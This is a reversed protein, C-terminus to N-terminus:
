LGLDRRINDILWFHSIHLTEGVIIVAGKGYKLGAVFPIMRKEDKKSPMSAYEIWEGKPAYPVMMYCPAFWGRLKRDFDWPKKCWDGERVYKVHREGLPYDKPEECACVVNTDGFIKQLPVTWWSRALLTGGGRVHERIVAAVEPTFAKSDPVQLYYSDTKAVNAALEAANTCPLLKWGDAEAQARLAPIGGLCRKDGAYFLIPREAAPAALFDLKVTVDERVPYAEAGSAFRADWKENAAPEHGFAAMPLRILLGKGGKAEATWEPKWTTMEVGVDSIRKASKAGGRFSFTYREAYADVLTVEGEAAGTFAFVIETKPTWYGCVKVAGDKGNKAKLATKPANGKGLREGANVKPLKFSVANGLRLERYDVWQEYLAKERQVNRRTREDGNAALKEAEALLAATKARVKDDKLLNASVNMGDAFLGIKGPQAGWAGDVALFYEKMPKAAAGYATACLDDLFAELTLEPQWMKRAYYLITLRNQIAGAKVDPGKKPSLGVETIQTVLGLEAAVEVADGVMSFFPMFISHGSIADYEYAYHGIKVDDRACWDKLRKLESVNSKCTEDGWKHIHCRPHSAYEIFEVNEFRCKPVDLYGQYALTAFRLKPFRGHLINVVKNFYEFWGNAVGKAKCEPCQCYDQNDNPFISIIDVPAQKTRRAVDNGIREAVKQAGLDSSFCINIMSRHGNLMCFCEPHEAFLKKEGNLNANHMSPMSYHGYKEEGTWNGHRHINVYNRTEWLLFDNRDRWDGCHHFGRFWIAPTHDFGFKSPFAWKKREPYYAGDEKPWLWRVGLERDLFAYAAHLAARPQNGTLLLDGGKLRYQVREKAWGEDDAFIKVAHAVGEGSTVVPLAAGSVRAVANSFETAAFRICEPADAAVVIKWETRGNEFLPPVDSSFWGGFAAFAAGLSVTLALEKMQVKM